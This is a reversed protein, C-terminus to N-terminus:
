VKERPALPIDYEVEEGFKPVAIEEAEDSEGGATSGVYMCSPTANDYPVNASM